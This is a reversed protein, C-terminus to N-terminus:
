DPNSQINKEVARSFQQEEKIQEQTRNDKFIKGNAGKALMRVIASNPKNNTISYHYDRMFNKVDKKSDFKIDVGM